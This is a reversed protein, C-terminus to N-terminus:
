FLPWAAVHVKHTKNNKQSTPLLKHTMSEYACPSLKSGIHLHVNLIITRDCYLQLCRCNCRWFLNTAMWVLQLKWERGKSGRRGVRYKGGRWGISGEEGGKVERRGM